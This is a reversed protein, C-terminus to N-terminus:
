NDRIRKKLVRIEDDILEVRRQSTFQNTNIQEQLRNFKIDNDRATQNILRTYEQQQVEYRLDIDVKNNSYISSGVFGVCVLLLLFIGAVFSLVAMEYARTKM